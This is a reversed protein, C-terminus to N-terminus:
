LKELYHYLSALFDAMDDCYDKRLATIISALRNMQEESPKWHPRTCEGCLFMACEKCNRKPQSRLSKIFPSLVNQIESRISDTKEQSISCDDGVYDDLMWLLDDLRELMEEDELWGKEVTAVHQIQPIMAAGGGITFLGIKFFEWFLNIM